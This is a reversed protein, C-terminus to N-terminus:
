SVPLLGVADFPNFLSCVLCRIGNQLGVAIKLLARSFTAADWVTSLFYNHELNTAVDFVLWPRLRLCNQVCISSLNEVKGVWVGVWHFVNPRQVPASSQIKPVLWFLAKEWGPARWSNHFNKSVLKIAQQQKRVESRMTLIWFASIVGRFIAAKYVSSPFMINLRELTWHQLALIFIKHPLMLQDTHQFFNVLFINFRVELLKVCDEQNVSALQKSQLFMQNESWHVLSLFLMESFATFDTAVQLADLGSNSQSAHATKWFCFGAWAPWECHFICNIAKRVCVHNPKEQMLLAM